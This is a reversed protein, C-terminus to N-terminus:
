QYSSMTATEGIVLSMTSLSKSASSFGLSAGTIYTNGDPVKSQQQHKAETQSNTTAGARGAQYVREPTLRVALDILVARGCVRVAPSLLVIEESKVM